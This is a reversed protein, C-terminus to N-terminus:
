EVVVGGIEEFLLHFKRAKSTALAKAIKESSKISGRHIFQILEPVYQVM